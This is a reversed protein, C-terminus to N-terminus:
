NPILIPMYSESILITHCSKKAIYRTVTGVFFNVPFMWPSFLWIPRPLFLSLTKLDFIGVFDFDLGFAFFCIENWLVYMNTGLGIKTM